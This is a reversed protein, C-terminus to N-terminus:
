IKKKLQNVEKRLEEILLRQEEILSDQKDMKKKHEILSAECSTRHSREEKLMQELTQLLKNSTEVIQDTGKTIVDDKHAKANQKGGMLWAALTTTLGIVGTVIAPLNENMNM